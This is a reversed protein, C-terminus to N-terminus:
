GRSQVENVPYPPREGRLVALINDVSLTAMREAAQVTLGAVHPTAIVNSLGLLPHDAGPPEQKFVDLAAGAIRGERLAAALDSEHVLEGRATNVLYASPKMQALTTACIIDRTQQTSPAHLSVFDAECLLTELSVYTAGAAAAATEDQFVDSILVRMGFARARLAVQRGIRGFGILGLTLGGLEVGMVRNWAGRRTHEALPVAMRALALVFTLALDAVSHENTGPTTTVWVGADAAAALDVSDYGVGFRSVIKLRDAAAFVPGTFADTSALVADIGQLLPLLEAETAPHAHPSPLLTCGADRLRQSHHNGAQQFSQSTILVRYGAM